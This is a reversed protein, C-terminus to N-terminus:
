RCQPMAKSLRLARQANEGLIKRREESTLPLKHVLEIAERPDFLPWKTGFLIRDVGILRFWTVAEAPTWKGPEDLGSLRMSTETYVNPYRRTLTAIESEYGKGLHGLILTLKPFSVAVDGFYRPRGWHGRGGAPLPGADGTQALIPLRLTQAMDYIPWVRRDNGYFSHLSPLLVIGRAGRAAAERIKQRIAVADMLAPDLNIFPLLEPYRNGAECGWLNNHDMRQLLRTHIEAEARERAERPLDAPLQALAKARMAQTPTVTAIVTRWMGAERMIARLEDVIGGWKLPHAVNELAQRGIEPTRYVHAHVDITIADPM